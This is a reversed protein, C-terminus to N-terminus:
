TTLFVIKKIYVNNSEVHTTGFKNWKIIHLNTSTIMHCIEFSTRTVHFETIYATAREQDIQMM